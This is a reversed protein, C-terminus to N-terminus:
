AAEGHRTSSEPESDSATSPHSQTWKKLGEQLTYVARELDAKMVNRIKGKYALASALGSLQSDWKLEPVGANEMMRILVDIDDQDITPRETVVSDVKQFEMPDARNVADMMAVLKPNDVKPWHKWGRRLPCKKYMEGRFPGVWTFPVKGKNKTIAAQKCAMLEARDMVEIHRKGSSFDAMCYAHTVGGREQGEVHMIHRGDDDMWVKFKDGARVLVCQIGELFGTRWAIQELGMYSPSVTCNKGYPILYAEKLAPSLSLGMVSLDILARGVSEPDCRRLQSGSETAEIIALAYHMEVRWNMGEKLRSRNFEKCLAGGRGLEKKLVVLAQEM